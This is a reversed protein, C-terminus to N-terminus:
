YSGGADVPVLRTWAGHWCGQVYGRRVADGFCIWQASSLEVDEGYAPAMYGNPIELKSVHNALANLGPCPGRLDGPGPARYEHGSGESVDVYQAQANFIRLPEFVATAAGAGVQRGQLARVAEEARRLLQPDSAAADLIATPWASVLHPATGALLALALGRFLYM